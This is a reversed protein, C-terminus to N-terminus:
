GSTSVLTEASPGGVEAEDGCRLGRDLALVADRDTRESILADFSASALRCTPTRRVTQGSRSATEVGLLACVECRHALKCNLATFDRCGFASVTIMVGPQGLDIRLCSLIM